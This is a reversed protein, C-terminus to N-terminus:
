ASFVDPLPRKTRGSQGAQRNKEAFHLELAGLQCVSEAAASKPGPSARAFSM